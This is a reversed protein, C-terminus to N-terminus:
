YGAQWLRWCSPGRASHREHALLYGFGAQALLILDKFIWVGFGASLGVAVAAGGLLFWGSPQWRDLRRAITNPINGVINM